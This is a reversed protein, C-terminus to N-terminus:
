PTEKFEAIRKRYQALEARLSALRGMKEDVKAIHQDLIQVLRPMVKEQSRSQEYLASLEEM